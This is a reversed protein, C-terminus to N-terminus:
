KVKKFIDPREAIKAALNDKYYYVWVEDGRAIIAQRKKSDDAIVDAQDHPTGDCFVWFRNNYYFDPQVYLGEVKKQASDPLRLGNEYLYDIFKRETTSNPDLNRLLSQYQEEYNSYSSNTQIELKSIRLKELASKILHRDIVKHDRQNYYSLLDDYTAPGKYVQDDFRCLEIAKEIVAHFEGINEVFRSLIGLSGEAAEYILINPAEPDGITTVGIENSEVQFVSEIARKLAHQLTIVGDPLLGLPQIPEIFLTDALRSTWLKVLKYNEKQNETPEPISSRWDGSIIGIPYGEHKNARWQISVDVLRASQIFRLNLLSGEGTHVTAKKVRDLSGGDITFYTRIEFGKSLREEEECTIREREEARSESMEALDHVTEKNHTDSLSLGTFPCNELSTQEDALVYGARKSIKIDKLSTELEQTILQSVRYKRGNHYIINLPGFERLAISRPRSVFEGGTATTPLFIRIPLRTFNYGPLFGESALYRYPYFESLESSGGIDNRLLDLQRTAQDLSRKHKKYEDSGLKLTGSDLRQTAVSLVNKASNFLTRWRNLSGDLADVIKNINQEIWQENYWHGAKQVLENEFDYLVRKYSFKLEALKQSSIELGAVVAKDLPFKDNGQEVFNMLSTRGTTKEGEMAPMGIESVVFAHLHTLLLEKNCLDLRPAQVTGAVLDTPSNFYHRDHPAYSSCFTFVLAGQGSRGARGSRQAYNAANPPVNRMHVVSLGGIDVGLEMTPSCFLVSISKTRIRNEDPIKKEDDLYWDARFKDERDKRTDNNLQGTHDEARLKKTVSFDRQYMDRFYSNPRPNKEKYGRRKVIDPRVTQGDGLQWIIREIRLRYIPVEENETNKATRSVIYDAAELKKMLRIIFSNYNDGKLNVEIKNLQIYNKIFKGLASVSGMSKTYLKATKKNLADIRLFSPERLHENQDLTWPALLKECFLKENEQLKSSNFYNESHLAYELRFFDLVARIFETRDEVSLVNLLELDKWHDNNAAVSNLHAYGIELLACQELNPLIIRWSRRLDSIIRYFLFDQFLNEYEKRIHPMPAEDNRNAFETFPLNLSNFVAESINAFSLTKTPSDKLARWIGARFRITQVFDNFHGAQ